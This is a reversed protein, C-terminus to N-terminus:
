LTIKWMDAALSRHCDFNGGLRAREFDEKWKEIEALWGVVRAEAQALDFYFLVTGDDATIFEYARAPFNQANGATGWLNKSSSLRGPAKSVGQQKFIPRFRDDKDMEMEAYTGFFKIDKKYQNYMIIFEKVEFPVRTDDIIKERAKEDLGNVKTGVKMHTFLLIKMQDNSNFNLNYHPMKLYKRIYDLMKLRQEELNIALDAAVAKQVVPDTNIGDVTIQQLHPELDRVNTFYFDELNQAKLEKHIKEYCAYTLAADKCNYIWYTDISEGEKYKNIEDKYYPHTTYQSVLFDLSHPLSPYLTHHALLTDFWIPIRLYEKFGTWTHDFNGNQAIIKCSEGMEQIAMLLRYEEDLSYRNSSRDRLNICMALHPDNSFGHCATQMNTTEIDWSIPRGANKLGNIFDMAEKFSPNILAEVVHEKFTGALVDSLRLMDMQYIIETKPERLCYAPNFTPLVSVTTGENDYYYVSGRHKTIGSTLQPFLATLADEGLCVIHKLNKLQALEWHLLVAWKDKEDQSIPKNSYKSSTVQRKAANTAYIQPRLIKHQRFAKWMLNGSAGIFPVKKRVEDGGPAEGVVAITGDINGGMPCQVAPDMSAARHRFEKELEKINAFDM